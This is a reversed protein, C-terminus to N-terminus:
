RTMGLQKLGPRVIASSLTLVWARRIAEALLNEGFTKLPHGTLRIPASPPAQFELLALLAKLSFLRKM